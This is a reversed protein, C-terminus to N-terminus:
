PYKIANLPMEPFLIPLLDNLSGLANKRESQHVILTM